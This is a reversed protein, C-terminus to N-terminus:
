PNSDVPFSTAHNVDACSTMNGTIPPTGESNSHDLPSENIISGALKVINPMNKQGYNVFERFSIDDPWTDPSLATPKHQAEFGVKFSVFSMNSTDANKSVLKTVKIDDKDSLGVCERALAAIQDVTTHPHFASLYRCVLQEANRKVTQISGNSVRTGKISEPKQDSTVTLGDNGRQRKASNVLSKNRVALRWPNAPSLLPSSPIVESRRALTGIATNLKAIDAKMDNITDRLDANTADCRNTLNRFHGNSFLEACKDCMWFVNRQHPRLQELLPMDVEVCITHFTAGCFGRCMIREADIVNKQCRGCNM